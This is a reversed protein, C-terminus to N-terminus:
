DKAAPVPDPIGCRALKAITGSIRDPIEDDDLQGTILRFFSYGYFLDMLFKTDLEPPIEGRDKATQFAIATFAQRKPIFVERLYRVGEEELMMESLILRFLSGSYDDRWFRWVQRLMIALDKALDKGELEVLERKSAQLYVELLLAHRFPWWRYITPKGCGALKAVAEITFGAPGENVLVETAAAIIAQHLVPNRQNGTRPRPLATKKRPMAPLKNSRIKKPVLRLRDAEAQPFLDTQPPIESPSSLMFISTVNRLTIVFHIRDVTFGETTITVLREGQGRWVLVRKHCDLFFRKREVADCSSRRHTARILVTVGM